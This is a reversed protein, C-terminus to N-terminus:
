SLSGVLALGGVIVLLGGTIRLVVRRKGPDEPLWWGYYGPTDGEATEPAFVLNTLGLAIIALAILWTADIILALGLLAFTVVLSTFFAATRSM